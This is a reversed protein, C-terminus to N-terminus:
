KKKFSFTSKQYIAGRYTCICIYTILQISLVKQGITRKTVIGDVNRQSFDLLIHLKGRTKGKADFAIWAIKEVIEWAYM